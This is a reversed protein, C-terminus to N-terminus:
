QTQSNSHEAGSDDNKKTHGTAVMIEYMKRMLMEEEVQLKQLEHLLSQRTEKLIENQKDIHQFLEASHTPDFNKHDMRIFDLLQFESFFFLVIEIIKKKLITSEYM